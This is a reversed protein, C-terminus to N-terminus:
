VKKFLKRALSEEFCNKPTIEYLDNLNPWVIDFLDKFGEYYDMVLADSVSEKSNYFDRIKM